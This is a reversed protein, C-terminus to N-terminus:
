KIFSHKKFTSRIGPNILFIVQLKSKFKALKQWIFSGIHQYKSLCLSIEQCLSPYVFTDQSEALTSPLDKM